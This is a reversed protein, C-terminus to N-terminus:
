ARRPPARRYASASPSNASPSREFGISTVSGHTSSNISAHGSFRRAPFRTHSSFSGNRTRAAAELAIVTPDDGFVDDGVEAEAMAHRMAATPRTVTDSRLDVSPLSM